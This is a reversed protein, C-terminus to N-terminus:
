GSKKVEDVIALFFMDPKNIGITEASMAFCLLFHGQLFPTNGM